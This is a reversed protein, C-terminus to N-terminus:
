FDLSKDLKNPKFAKKNNSEFQNNNSHLLNLQQYEIEIKKLTQLYFFLKVYYFYRSKM